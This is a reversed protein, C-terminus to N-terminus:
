IRCRSDLVDNITNDVPRGCTETSSFSVVPLLCASQARQLSPADGRSLWSLLVARASFIQGNEYFFGTWNTQCVMYFYGAISNMLGPSHERKVLSEQRECRGRPCGSPVFSDWKQSANYYHPCLAITHLRPCPVLKM